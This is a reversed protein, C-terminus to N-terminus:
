KKIDMFYNRSEKIERKVHNKRCNICILEKEKNEKQTM